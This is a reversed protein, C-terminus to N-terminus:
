VKLELWDVLSELFDLGPEALPFEGPRTGEIEECNHATRIFNQYFDIFNSESLQDAFEEPSFQRDLITEEDEERLVIGFWDLRNDNELDIFEEDLLWDTVQEYLFNPEVQLAAIRIHEVIDELEEKPNDNPLEPLDEEQFEGLWEGVRAIRDPFNNRCCRRVEQRLQELPTYVPIGGKLFYGSQGGLIGILELLDERPIKSLKSFYQQPEPSTRRKKSMNKGSSGTMTMMVMM